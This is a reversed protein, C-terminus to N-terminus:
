NNIKNNLYERTAKTVYGTAVNALDGFKLSSFNLSVASNYLNSQSQNFSQNFANLVSRITDRAIFKPDAVIAIMRALRRFDPEDINLGCMNSIYDVFPQNSLLNLETNLKSDGGMSMCNVNFLDKINMHVEVETPINDYTWSGENGKNISLETVIGLNINFFGQYFARILFPAAYTNPGTYKPAALCITHVLPVIINLFISFPDNDPSDLKFTINYDRTFQSDQWLEPFVMKSGTITNSIGNAIAGIVGNSDYSQNGRLANYGKLIGRALTDAAKAGYTGVTGGVDELINVTNNAMFMLERSADSIANTKAALQSQTTNNSFSESIQNETNLYYLLSGEFFSSSAINHPSLQKWDMEKLITTNGNYEFKKDGIDMFISCMRLIANVYKYYLNWAPYFRYYDGRVSSTYKRINTVFADDKHMYEKIMNDREKNSYQPMFDVLGPMIICLPMRSLIKERYKIGIDSNNIVNSSGNNAVRLDAIPLYQYPMGFVGRLNHLSKKTIESVNDSMTKEKSYFTLIYSKLEEIKADTLEVVEGLQPGPDEEEKKKKAAADKSKSGDGGGGNEGNSSDDEKPEDYGLKDKIIKKGEEPIDSWDIQEPKFIGRPDGVYFKDDVKYYVKVNTRSYAVSVKPYDDFKVGDAKNIFYTFDYLVNDTKVVSVDDKPITYDKANYAVVLFDTLIEKIIFEKKKGYSDYVNIIEKDSIKYEEGSDTNPIIVCKNGIVYKRDSLDKSEILLGKESFPYIWGKVKDNNIYLWAGANDEIEVEDKKHLTLIIKSSLNCKEYIPLSDGIVIIKM